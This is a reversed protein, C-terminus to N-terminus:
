GPCVDRKFKIETEGFHYKVPMLLPNVRAVFVVDGPAVNSSANSRREGGYAEAENGGGDAFLHLRTNKVSTFYCFNTRTYECWIGFITLRGLISLARTSM